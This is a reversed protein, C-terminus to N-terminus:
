DFNYGESRGWCGEVAGLFM